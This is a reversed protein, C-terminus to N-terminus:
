CNAELGSSNCVTKKAMGGGGGCVGVCVCVSLMGDSGDLMYSTYVHGICLYASEAPKMPMTCNRHHVQM